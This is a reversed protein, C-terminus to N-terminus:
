RSTAFIRNRSRRKRRPAPHGLCGWFIGNNGQRLIMMKRCGPLPCRPPPITKVSEIPLAPARQNQKAMGLGRNWQKGCRQCLVWRINPGGKPVLNVRLHPCTATVEGDSKKANKMEPERNLTMVTKLGSSASPAGTNGSPVAGLRQNRKDRVEVLEYLTQEAEVAWDVIRLGRMIKIWRLIVRPTTLDKRRNM